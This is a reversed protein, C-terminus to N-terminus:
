TPLPEPESPSNRTPGSPVAQYQRRRLEHETILIAIGATVAGLAVEAPMVWVCGDQRLAGLTTVAAVVHLAAPVAALPRNGAELAQFSIVTGCCNVFFLGVSVV